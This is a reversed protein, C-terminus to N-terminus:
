NSARWSDKVDILMQSENDVYYIPSEEGIGERMRQSLIVSFTKLNFIDYISCMPTLSRHPSFKSESIIGSVQDIVFLRRFYGERNNSM